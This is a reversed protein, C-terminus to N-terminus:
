LKHKGSPSLLQCVSRLIKLEQNRRWSSTIQTALECLSSQILFTVAAPNGDLAQQVLTFGYSQSLNNIDEETVTFGGARSSSFQELEDTLNAALQFVNENLDHVIGLVEAEAIRNSPSLFPKAETYKTSKTSLEETRRLQDEMARIRQDQKELTEKHTRSFEEIWDELEVIREKTARYGEAYREKSARLRLIEAAQADIIARQEGM